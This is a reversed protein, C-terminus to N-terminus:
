QKKSKKHNRMDKLFILTSGYKIGSKHNYRSINYIIKVHKFISKYANLLSFAPEYIHAPESNVGNIELIKIKEGKYLEELSNYKLDFRGYYFGKLDKAINDFVSVLEKNILYNGNLFVTGRNHNGIPELLIKEGKSIIKNLINSYKKTLYDFRMLSRLDKKMLEQLTHKGDGEIILFKRKVVSSIHGENENPYRYYLVGIENDFDIYEQIIISEKITNLYLELAKKSVIKEVQIGREGVDPKAIIPYNLKNLELLEEIKNISFPYKALISVPKFDSNVSNLIEAKSMGFAGGYKMSPNAASFYVLSKAKIAFIFSYLLAPFYLIYYPWFEYRFIKIFFLYFREKISLM